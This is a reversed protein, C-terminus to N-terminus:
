PARTPNPPATGMTTPTEPHGADQSAARYDALTLRMAQALPIRVVGEKQDVWRYSGLKTEEDARLKALELNPRALVKSEVEARMMATYTEHVAILGAGLLALGGMLRLAALPGAWDADASRVSDNSNM